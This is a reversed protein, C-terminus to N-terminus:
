LTFIKSYYDARESDYFEKLKESFTRAPLKSIRLKMKEFGDWLSGRIKTLYLFDSYICSISVTAAVEHGKIFKGDHIGELKYGVLEMRQQWGKLDIHQGASIRLMGMNKFGHETILAIAELASYSSLRMEVSSDIVIAIECTKNELNISSLSVVGKYQNKKSRIILILRNKKEKLFFQEQKAPTNPFSGYELYRTIKSDNFWSYWASEVAFVSTPVCLDITEGSIFVDLDIM